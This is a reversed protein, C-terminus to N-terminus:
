FDWNWAFQPALKDQARARDFLVSSIDYAEYPKTAAKYTTFITGGIVGFAFGFALNQLHEQPRGYFSLTSLGLIAGSLGAFIITALQKRTGSLEASSTSMGDANQAIAPQSCTFISLSLILCSTVLIRYTFYKLFKPM